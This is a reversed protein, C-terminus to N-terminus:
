ASLSAAIEKQIALAADRPNAADRIPRGVVLYDGGDRIIQTPTAVRKQDDPPRNTLPRVGPTVVVLDSGCTRRLAAVELGSSVVGDCGLKLARQARSLVLERVDCSFGLDRLDGSDLSTLATVALIKLQTSRADAAAQMIADNGHVTLFDAGLAAVQATARAVTEPVDFLKLDVFVRLGRKKLAEVLTHGDGAAFLELGVKYFDAADGIADVLSLADNASPVDLAVILRSSAPIHM